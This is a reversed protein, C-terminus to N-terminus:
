AIKINIDFFDLQKHYRKTPDSIKPGSKVVKVAAWM